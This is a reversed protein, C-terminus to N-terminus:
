QTRRAGTRKRANRNSSRPRVPQGDGNRKLRERENTRERVGAREPDATGERAVAREQEVASEGRDARESMATSKAHVARENMM